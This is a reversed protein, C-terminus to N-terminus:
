WLNPTANRYKCWAIADSECVFVAVKHARVAEDLSCKMEGEFVDRWVVYGLGSLYKVRHPCRPFGNSV